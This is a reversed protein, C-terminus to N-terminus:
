LNVASLNPRADPISTLWSPRALTQVAAAKRTLNPLHSFLFWQAMVQDDTWGHPYRQVEDVLKMSALRADQGKGPLRIRSTRWPERLIYVGYDPDHKNRNTDHPVISTRHLTTWRRVFDYQLLFRQAGNREIVWYKIPWGLRESRTQWDQMLGSYEGDNERWELLEDARLKGKFLDMLFVQSDAQPTAVYWHIGWYRTPSPDVVAISYKEGRLNPPLQCLGRNTDWCPYHMVGTEPDTGGTVWVKKVLTDALDTDEQQYWVEYTTPDQHKLSRLERWPLRVPDLLCGNPWTPDDRKHRGSCKSDDHAKYVVHRYKRGMGTYADAREAESLAELADLADDDDPLTVKDLAHRYLDNPGIRQGILWLAGGPDIRSEAISDFNRRQAEIKEQTTLDKPVTADDWLALNIRDGLYDVDLGYATWTHEKETVLEFDFQVVMLADSRWPETKDTPRFLGFDGALTAQADCALGLREMEEEARAPITRELNRRLRGLMKEAKNQTASGMLGRIGRNRVTLWAAIDCSLTTKGSGPAVSMVGFERQPTAFSELITYAAEVMWPRSLHGFYRRRFFEFDDWGQRAEQKLQDYPIPGALGHEHKRQDREAKDAATERMYIYAWAPSVGVREAAARISMGKGVLAVLRTKQRPTVRKYGM